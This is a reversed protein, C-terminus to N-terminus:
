DTGRTKWLAGRRPASWHSVVRRSARKERAAAAREGRERAEAARDDVDRGRRGPGGGVLVGGGLRIRQWRGVAHLDIPVLRHNERPRRSLDRRERERTRMLMGRDLPEHLILSELAGFVVRLVRRGADVRRAARRAVHIAKRDAAV